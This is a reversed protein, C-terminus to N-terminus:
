GRFDIRAYSDRQVGRAYRVGPRGFLMAYFPVTRRLGITQELLEPIEQQVLKLCRGPFAMRPAGGEMKLARFACDRVCAGCSVCKSGDVEFLDAM